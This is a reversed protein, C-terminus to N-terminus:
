YWSKQPKDRSRNGIEYATQPQTGRGLVILRRNKIFQLDMAVGDKILTATMPRVIFKSGATGNPSPVRLGLGGRFGGRCIEYFVPMSWMIRFMGTM